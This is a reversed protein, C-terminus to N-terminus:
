ALKGFAYPDMPSGVGYELLKHCNFKQTHSNAKAYGIVFAGYEGVANILNNQTCSGIYVIKQSSQSQPTTFRYQHPDETFIFGIRGAEM